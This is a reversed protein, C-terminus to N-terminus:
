RCATAAAECRGPDGEPLGGFEDLLFLQVGGLDTRGALERYLPRVTDGTPLCLRLGPRAREVLLEAVAGAWSDDPYVELRHSM